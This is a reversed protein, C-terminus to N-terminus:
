IGAKQKPRINIYYNALEYLPSEEPFRHWRGDCDPCQWFLIGDYVGQFEVGIRRSFQGTEGYRFDAGCLPCVDKDKKAM